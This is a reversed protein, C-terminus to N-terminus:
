YNGKELHYRFFLQKHPFFIQTLHNIKGSAQLLPRKTTARGLLEGCVGVSSNKKTALDNSGILIKIFLFILCLHAIGCCASWCCIEITFFFILSQEFYFALLLFPNWKLAKFRAHVFLWM